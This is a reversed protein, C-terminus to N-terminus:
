ILEPHTARSLASHFDPDVFGVVFYWYVATVEVDLVRKLDLPRVFLYAALISAEAVSTVIHVTHLTLMAWVVSGYANSDWKVQM